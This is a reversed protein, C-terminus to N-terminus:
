PMGEGSEQGAAGAEERSSRAGLRALRLVLAAAAFQSPRRQALELAQRYLRAAREGEGLHDVCVALNYVLDPWEPARARAGAFHRCARQWQGLSAHIVGLAFLPLPSLPPRKSLNELSTLSENQLFLETAAELARGESSASPAERMSTRARLFGRSDGLALASAALGILAPRDGPHELEVQRWLERARLPHGAIFFSYARDLKQLRAGGPEAVRAAIDSDAVAAASLSLLGGLVLATPLARM